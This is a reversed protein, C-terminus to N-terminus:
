GGREGLTPRSRALETRAVELLELMRSSIAGFRTPDSLVPETTAAHQLAKAAREHFRRNLVSHRVPAMMTEVTGPLLWDAPSFVGPTSGSLQRIGNLLHRKASESATPGPLPQPDYPLGLSSTMDSWKFHELSTRTQMPIWPIRVADAVVAGHLAQSLLVRCRAVLGLVQDPDLRPDIYHIGALECIEEWVGTEAGQWAPMFGVNVDPNDAKRLVEGVLVGSDAAALRPDLGLRAATLPGRVCYVAWNRATAHSSPGYGAGAGFVVVRKGQPVRDDLLSGIGVFVTDHDANLADPLLRSWLWPNLADGFNPHQSWYYLLDRGM